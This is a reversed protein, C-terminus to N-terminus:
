SYKHYDHKPKLTDMASQLRVNAATIGESIDSCEQRIRQSQEECESHGHSCSEMIALIPDIQASKAGGEVIKAIIGCRACINGRWKM